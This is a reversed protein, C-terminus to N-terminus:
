LLRVSSRHVVEAARAVQFCLRDVETRDVDHDGHVGTGPDESIRSVATRLEEGRKRIVDNLM